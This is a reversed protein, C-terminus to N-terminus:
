HAAAPKWEWTYCSQFHIEAEKKEPYRSKSNYLDHLIQSKFYQVCIQKEHLYYFHITYNKTGFTEADKWAELCCRWVRASFIDTHINEEYGWVGM